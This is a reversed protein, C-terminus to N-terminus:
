TFTATLRMLSRVLPTDRKLAYCMMQGVRQKRVLGSLELVKLQQSAAPVSVQLVRAVDTVCLEHQQQQSLLRFIRFRGPDSLAAFVPLLRPSGQGVAARIEHLQVRSLM